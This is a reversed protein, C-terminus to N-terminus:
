TNPMIEVRFRPPPHGHSRSLLTQAPGQQYGQHEMAGQQAGGPGQPLLHGGIPPGQHHHQATGLALGHKGRRRLRRFGGPRGLGGGRLFSYQNPSDSDLFQRVHGSTAIAEDVIAIHRLPLSGRALRWEERFMATWPNEAVLCDPFHCALVHEIADSM